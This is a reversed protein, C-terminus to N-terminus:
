EGEEPRAAGPNSSWKVAATAVVDYPPIVEAFM